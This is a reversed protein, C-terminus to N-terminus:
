PIFKRGSGLSWSVHGSINASSTDGVGVARGVPSSYHKSTVSLQSKQKNKSGYVWGMEKKLISAGLGVTCAKLEPLFTRPLYRRGLSHRSRTVYKHAMNMAEKHSQRPLLNLTRWPGTKM